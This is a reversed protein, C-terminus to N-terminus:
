PPITSSAEAKVQNRGEEKAEYMAQDARAVLSKRSNGRRWSAVGISITVGGLKGLDLAEASQRLREALHLGGILDCDSALVLFEEGGWRGLNDTPRLINQLVSSLTMLVQDGAEHGYTDNFHKFHDIDFLLVSFPRDHREADNLEADLAQEMRYRNWTGTLGDNYAMNKLQRNAQHLKENLQSIEHSATLVALNKALDGISRCEIARWVRSRGRVEEQWQTFSRRPTMVLQGNRVMPTDEPEGAWRRSYRHERRFLMLWHTTETPLAMALLGCLDGEQWPALATKALTQTHWPTDHRQHRSLWDAMAVLNEETPLAGLGSSKNGTVLAIGSAELLELWQGGHAQILSEPGLLRGSEDSLIENSDHIGHLLRTDARTRLVMLRQMAIQVLACLADRLDAELPRPELGHCALLGWLKGQEHMAISLSAGVGMNTLYEQHIPAVARLVGRSMDLPAREEPSCPPVLPVAPALADPISRVRNMDYLRRVQAPIDSAPFYHDLYSEAVPLRTEAIVRGNWNEDFRYVMVREHGAWEQIRRTLTDLLTDIDDIKGVEVLWDNVQDLLRHGDPCMQYELEVVFADDGSPYAVVHYRRRKGEVDGQATATLVSASNDQKVLETELLDMLEDGLIERPHGVLVDTVSIGLYDEINASVQRIRGMDADLSVLCGMPQIAGPIHVPESACAELAAAIEADSYHTNPM